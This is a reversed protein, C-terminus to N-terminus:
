SLWRVEGVRRKWASLSNSLWRSMGRLSLVLLFLSVSLVPNRGNVASQLLRNSEFIFSHSTMKWRM